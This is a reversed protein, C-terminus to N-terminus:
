RWFNIDEQSIYIGYKRYNIVMVRIYVVVAAIDILLWILLWKLETM